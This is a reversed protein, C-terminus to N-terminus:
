VRHREILRVVLVGRLILDHDSAVLDHFALKSNRDGRPRQMPCTSGVEPPSLSRSLGTCSVLSSGGIASIVAIITWGLWGVIIM